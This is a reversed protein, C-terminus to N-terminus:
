WEGVGVMHHKLFERGKETLRYHPCRAAHWLFMGPQTEELLGDVVLSLMWSPSIHTWLRPWLGEGEHEIATELIALKQDLPPAEPEFPHRTCLGDHKPLGCYGCAEEKSKRAM